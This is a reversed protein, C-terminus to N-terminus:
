LRLQRDPYGLHQGQQRPRGPHRGLLGGVIGNSYEMFARWRGPHVLSNYPRMPAPGTWMEYDLYEPPDTDPPNGRARMHYYCYVEVLGVRGLKGTKIIEDRAQAIHPTSRRQLGVQVVRKYTRAAALM